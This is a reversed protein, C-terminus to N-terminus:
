RSSLKFLIISLQNCREIYILFISSSLSSFRCKFNGRNWPLYYCYHYWRGRENLRLRIRVIGLSARPLLSRSSHGQITRNILREFLCGNYSLFPLLLPFRPFLGRTLEFSLFAPMPEKSPSSLAIFGPLFSHMSPVLGIEVDGEGEMWGLVNWSLFRDFDDFRERKRGGESEGGERKGWTM